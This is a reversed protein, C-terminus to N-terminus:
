CGVKVDLAKALQKNSDFEVKLLIIDPNDASLQCLKPYLAKCSGCWRHVLCACVEASGPFRVMGEAVNTCQM